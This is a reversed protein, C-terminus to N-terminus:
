KSFEDVDQGQIIGRKEMELHLEKSLVHPLVNWRPAVLHSPHSSTWLRHLVIRNPIRPLVRLLFELYGQRSWLLVEGRCYMQELSTNRIVQLHHIKLSHLGMSCVHDVTALMETETEGPIGFILHAGVRFSGSKQLKGISKTFDELSHNRNLLALSRKHITQLGLEIQCEKNYQRVLSELGEILSDDLCDPRTSLILGCCEKQELCEIFSKFLLEPSGATCSEQQFYAFYRRFRDRILSKRGAEIQESLSKRPTLYGPTFSAPACFICGGRSRNPCVIGLDLPIKGISEGFRVRCDVSFTRLRVLSM